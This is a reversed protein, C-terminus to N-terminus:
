TAMERAAAEDRDHARKLDEEDLESEPHLEIHGSLVLLVRILFKIAIVTLGFPFVLNFERTLLGRAQEGTGPVAVQPMRTATPASPDMRLADVASKEFHATWDAGDLWANWDAATMWKDYPSGGVVRPFSMADLSAQRGFLFLDASLTRAGASLKEGTPTDCLKSAEGPCSQTANSRFEAINIYDVFGIVAGMCVAAAAIWGAIAAPQRANEPLYRLFVDVHIHKGRSTALSAGLLALWLTLCSALGRLGGVLMLSSANQLWNLLNSAWYVGAHVWVGGAFLGVLVGASAAVNHVKGGLRRTALHLAIGVFVATLLSRCVLGASNTGPQYESSLGKLIIWATLATIEALIVGVCLRSELRQWADDLRAIPAAWAAGPSTSGALSQPNEVM